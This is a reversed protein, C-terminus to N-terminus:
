TLHCISARPAGVPSLVDMKSLLPLLLLSLPHSLVSRSDIQTTDAAMQTDSCMVCVTLGTGVGGADGQQRSPVLVRVDVADGFFRWRREKRESTQNCKACVCVGDSQDVVRILM